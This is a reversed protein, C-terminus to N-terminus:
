GMDHHIEGLPVPQRWDDVGLAVIWLTLLLSAPMNILMALNSFGTYAIVIGAIATPVGSIIALTGIWRPFRRDLVVAIGCALVTLGFLMSGMSALGVEIQRVAFTAHFLSTKEPEATAAWRDVMVKLAVGDVAQLAAAVAVSAGAGIRVIPTWVAAPGDNLKRSFLVLTTVLLGVGYLQMLHSTVWHTDAAYEAFAAVPVNPDASTPHLYTGTLLLGAGFLALILGVKSGLTKQMVIGRTQKDQSVGYSIQRDGATCLVRPQQREPRSTEV